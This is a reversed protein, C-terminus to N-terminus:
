DIMRLRAGRLECIRREREARVLRRVDFAFPDSLSVGYEYALAPM